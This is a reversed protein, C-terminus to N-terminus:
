FSPQSRIRFNDRIRQSTFQPSIEITGWTVYWWLLFNILVWYSNGCNNSGTAYVSAIDKTGISISKAVRYESWVLELRGSTWTNLHRKWRFFFLLIKVICSPLVHTGSGFAQRRYHACKGMTIDCCHPDNFITYHTSYKYTSCVHITFVVYCFRELIGYKAPGFIGGSFLLWGVTLLVYLFWSSL